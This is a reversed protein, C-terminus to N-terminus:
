LYDCIQAIKNLYVENDLYDLYDLYYVYLIYYYSVNNDIYLKVNL